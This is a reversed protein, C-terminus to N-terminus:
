PAYAGVDDYSGNIDYVCVCVCVHVYVYIMILEGRDRHGITTHVTMEYMHKIM